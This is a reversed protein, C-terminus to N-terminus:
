LNNGMAVHMRFQAKNYAAAAKILDMRAQLYTEQAQLIEYPRATGTQKRGITQGLAERSFESSARALEMQEQSIMLDLQALQAEANISAIAQDRYISVLSLRADYQRPMGKYFLQGLPVRWRVGWNFQNTPYLPSFVDGFYSGSLGARLEPILLGSTISKRELQLAQQEYSFSKVAPHNDHDPKLKGSFNAEPVLTIPALMSDTAIVLSGLPLNLMAALETAKQLSEKEAEIMQYKLHRNNSKALLLDSQYQLGANEEITLHAVITDSQKLLDAYLTYTMQALLCDYYLSTIRLLEENRAVDSKLKAVETRAANAKVGYVGQAPQWVADFGVGANFYKRRVDTFFFGDGNMASGNLYHGNVGLYIDPLWWEKSSALQAMALDQQAQCEAITLNNAGGLKLVEELSLREVKQASASASVLLLLIHICFKRM